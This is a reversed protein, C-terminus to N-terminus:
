TWGSEWTFRIDQSRGICISSIRATTGNTIRTKYAMRRCRSRLDLLFCNTSLNTLECLNALISDLSDTCILRVFIFETNKERPYNGTWSSAIWIKGDVVVCQTHHIEMPPAKGKSWTRLVPDYIDVANDGRYRGGLLYAKRDVMTFCAEHRPIIGTAYRNVEIWQGTSPGPVPSKTPTTTPSMVESRIVQIKIKRSPGATGTAYRGTYPTATITHFGIELLSECPNYVTGVNGCLSFPLSSDTKNNTYGFVVSGVFGMSIAEISFEQDAPFETLNIIAGNTLSELVTQGMNGANANVLRFKAIRGVVTAPSSIPSPVQVTPVPLPIPVPKVPATVPVPHIPVPVPVPQIPIPAPIPQSPTSIGNTIQFFVNLPKGMTGNGKNGSWPMATVSHIGNLKLEPCPKFVGAIDGCMSYPKLGEARFPAQNNYKFQLSGITGNTVAEVNFAQNSSYKSLDIITGNKIKENITTNVTSNSSGDVLRLYLVKGLSQLDRRKSLHVASERHFDEAYVSCILSTLAFLFSKMISASDKWYAVSLPLHKTQSKTGTEFKRRSLM